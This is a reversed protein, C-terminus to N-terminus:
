PNRFSAELTQKGDRSIVYVYKFGAPRRRETKTKIGFETLRKGFNNAGRPKFGHDHAWSKYDGYLEKTEISDTMVTPTLGFSEVFLQVDDAGVYDKQVDRIAEIHQDIYSTRSEDIGRWLAMYDISDLERGDIAKACKIDYFRRMGTTDHLLVALQHNSAGIFSSNNPIQAVKNTTMIRYSVTRSTILQKLEEMETKAVGAMEDFFIVYHENMATAARSDTVEDLGLGSNTYEIIPEFLKRLAWSKGAGQAGTLVPMTEWYTPRSWMKRKVNLCWHALIVVNLELHESVPNLARVFRRLESLSESTCQIQTRKTALHAARDKAILEDMAALLETRELTPARHAPQKDRNYERRLEISDLYLSDFIQAYTREERDVLTGTPSITIQNSTLWDRVFERAKFVQM